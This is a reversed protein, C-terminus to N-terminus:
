GSPTMTGSGYSNLRAMPIAADLARQVEVLPVGHEQSLTRTEDDFYFSEGNEASEVAKRAPADIKANIPGQLPM